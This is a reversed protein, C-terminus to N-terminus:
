RQWVAVVTHHKLSAPVHIFQSIGRAYRCNEFNSLHIMIDTLCHHGTTIEFGKVDGFSDKGLPMELTLLLEEHIVTM